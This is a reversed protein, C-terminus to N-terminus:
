HTIVSFVPGFYKWISILFFFLPLLSLNCFHFNQSSIVHCYPVDGLFNNFAPVPQVLLNHFRWGWLYKFSSQIHRQAVQIQSRAVQILKSNLGAKVLQWGSTGELRFLQMIKFCPLVSPVSQHFGCPVTEYGLWTKAFKHIYMLFSIQVHWVCATSLARCKYTLESIGLWPRGMHWSLEGMETVTRGLLVCGPQCVFDVM